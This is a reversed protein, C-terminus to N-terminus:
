RGPGDVSALGPDITFSAEALESPPQGRAFVRARLTSTEAVTIPRVYQPSAETPSSGDLTYHIRVRPVDATLAVKVADATAGGDPSIAPARIGWPQLAISSKILYSCSCRDTADPM